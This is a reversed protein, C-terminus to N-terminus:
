TPSGATTQDADILGRHRLPALRDGWQPPSGGVRGHCVHPHMTLLVRCSPMALASDLLATGTSGMLGNPGWTSILIVALEDDGIGLAARYQSRHQQAKTWAVTEEAAADELWRYDESVEVGHFRDTVPIQPAPVVPLETM